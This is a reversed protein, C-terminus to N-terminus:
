TVAIIRHFHYLIATFLLHYLSLCFLHKVYIIFFFNSHYYQDSNEHESKQSCLGLVISRRKRRLM